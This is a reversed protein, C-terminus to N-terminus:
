VTFAEWSEQGSKKGANVRIGVKARAGLPTSVRVTIRGKRLATLVGKKSVKAM